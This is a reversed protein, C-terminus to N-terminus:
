QRGEVARKFEELDGSKFNDERYVVEFSKDLVIVAPVSDVSFANAVDNSVVDRKSFHYYNHETNISDHVEEYFVRFAEFSVSEDPAFLLVTPISDRFEPYSVGETLEKLSDAPIAGERRDIEEGTTANFVVTTPFAKIEMSSLEVSLESENNDNLEIVEANNNTEMYSTMVPYFSACAGCGELTYFKVKINESAVSSKIKEKFFDATIESEYSGVKAATDEVKKDCGGLVLVVALISLAVFKKM